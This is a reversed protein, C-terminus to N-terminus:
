LGCHASNFNLLILAIYKLYTKLQGETRQILRSTCIIFSKGCGEGSWSSVTETVDSCFKITNELNMQIIM